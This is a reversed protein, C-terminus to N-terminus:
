QKKEIDGERKVRYDIRPMPPNLRHNRIFQNRRQAWL